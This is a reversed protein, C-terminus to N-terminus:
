WQGTSLPHAFVACSVLVSIFQRTTMITAFALAGFQRITYIILVQGALALGESHLVMKGHNVLHREFIPLHAHSPLQVHDGSTYAEQCLKVHQRAM